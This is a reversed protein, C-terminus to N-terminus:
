VTGSTISSSIGEARFLVTISRYPSEAPAACGAKFSSKPAALFSARAEEPARPPRGNGLTAFAGSRPRRRSTLFFRCNRALGVSVMTSNELFGPLGPQRKGYPVRSRSKLTLSLSYSKHCTKAGLGKFLSPRRWFRPSSTWRPRLAPLRRRGPLQYSEPIASCAM